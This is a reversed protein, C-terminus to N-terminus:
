IVEEEDPVFGKSPITCYEFKVVKVKTGDKMSVTFTTPKSGESKSKQPKANIQWVTIGSVIFLALIILNEEYVKSELQPKETVETALM